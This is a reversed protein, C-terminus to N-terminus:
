KRGAGVGRRGPLRPEMCPARVVLQPGAGAAAAQYGLPPQGPVPASAFGVPAGGTQLWDALGAAFQGPQPFM